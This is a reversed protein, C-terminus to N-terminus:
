KRTDRRAVSPPLLALGKGLIYTGEWACGEGFPYPRPHPYRAKKEGRGANQPVARGGQASVSAFPPGRPVLSPASSAPPKRGGGGWTGPKRCDRTRRRLTIRAGGYCVSRQRRRREPLSPASFSSGGGRKLCQFLRPRGTSAQCCTAASSPRIRLLPALFPSRGAGGGM